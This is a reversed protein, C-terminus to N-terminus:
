QGKGCKTCFYALGHWSQWDHDCVPEPVHEVGSLFSRVRDAVLEPFLTYSALGDSKIVELQQKTLAVSLSLIVTDANRNLTIHDIPEM